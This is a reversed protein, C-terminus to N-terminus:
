ILVREMYRLDAEGEGSGRPLTASAGALCGEQGPVDSTLARGRGAWHLGVVGSIGELIRLGVEMPFLRPTVTPCMQRLHSM